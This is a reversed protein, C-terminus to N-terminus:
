GMLPKVTLLKCRWDADSFVFSPVIMRTKQHLRSVLCLIYLWTLVIHVPRVSLLRMDVDCM